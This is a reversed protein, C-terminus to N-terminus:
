SDIKLWREIFSVMNKLDVPKPLYDNMGADICKKRDNITLFATMAIIPVDHSIVDSKPDRIIQTAGFGDLEPMQCDMLILNYHNLQLLKIAEVGNVATDVKYGLKELCAAVMQLNNINDEVVLVRIRQKFLENILHRTILTTPHMVEGKDVHGLVLSLCEHMHEKKIPKPMYAAFGAKYFHDADGRQGISTTMVLATKKLKENQQIIKAFAEGEIDRIMMDLVLVEFANGNEVAAKMADLAPKAEMFELHVCGWSELLGSMENIFSIDNDVIIIRRGAINKGNSFLLFNDVAHKSMPLTFWFTSGADLSSNVGIEGGMLNVLQKCIALGLGTGGYKRTTSSDLQTFPQFLVDIRDPAIGIGTDKIEFKLIVKDISESELMANLSVSGANTFKIANSVLNVIIQRLRGPDGRLRSPVNPSIQCSFAIDKSMANPLMVETIDKMTVRLDFDLLDVETSGMEIKSLDLIDNLLSLLSEGSNRIVDAFKRQEPDLDTDLLLGVMGIVGNMPTRVEHSMNALFESKAINASEAKCAMENALKLAKELNVNIKETEEKAATLASETKKRDTIDRVTAVIVERGYIDIKCLYVESIFQTKDFRVSIWEFYQNEGNLVRNWKEQVTTYDYNPASLDDLVSAGIIRNRPFGYLELTQKNVDIITGKEDHVIVADYISDLFTKLTGISYKLTLEHQQFAFVLVVIGAFFLAICLAVLRSKYITGEWYAADIDAGIAVPVDAKEFGRLPVFASIWIGWRDPLPGSIFERHALVLSKEENDMEAYHQGPPSYNATDPTESDVLMYAKDKKIGIIYIFRFDKNSRKFDALLQKINNYANKNLDSDNWDLPKIDSPQVAAAMLKVRSMIGNELLAKQFKGAFNACVGGILVILFLFLPLWVHRWVPISINHLVIRRNRYYQRWLVTAMAVACACEITQPSIKLYEVFNEKNIFSAMFFDSKDPVLGALCAYIFIVLADCYRLFSTEKEMTHRYNYFLVACLASAPFILVYGAVALVAHANENDFLFWSLLCLPLIHVICSVSRNFCKNMFRRDFELLITFSSFLFIHGALELYVLLPDNKFSFSFMEIWGYACQLMAFSFLWGWPVPTRGKSHVLLISNAAILLFSLGYIFFIYDM